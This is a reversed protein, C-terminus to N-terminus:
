DAISVESIFEDNIWELQHEEKPNRALIIIPISVENNEIGM